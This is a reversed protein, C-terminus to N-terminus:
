QRFAVQMHFIRDPGHMQRGVPKGAPRRHVAGPPATQPHSLQRDRDPPHRTQSRVLRGCGCRFPRQGGNVPMRLARAIQEPYKPMQISAWVDLQDKGDDWNATVAFTEIPITSCRSWRARFALNHPAAAFDKEVEGWVWKRNFFINSGNEPHVLARRAEASRGSRHRLRASRLRNGGAGDCRRCHPTYRRGRRRGM